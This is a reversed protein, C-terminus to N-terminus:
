IKQSYEVYFCGRISYEYSQVIGLQKNEELIRTAIEYSEYDPAVYVKEQRTKIQNLTHETARERMFKSM